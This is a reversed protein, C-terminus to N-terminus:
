LDAGLEDITDGVAAAAAPSPEVASVMVALLIPLRPRNHNAVVAFAGIRGRSFRAPDVDVIGLEM